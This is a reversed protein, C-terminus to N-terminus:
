FEAFVQIGGLWGASCQIEEALFEEARDVGDAGFGVVGSDRLGDDLGLRLQLFDALLHLVHLLRTQSFANPSSVAMVTSDVEGETNDGVRRRKRNCGAGDRGPSTNACRNPSNSSNSASCRPMSPLWEYKDKDSAFERKKVEERLAILRKWTEQDGEAHSEFRQDFVSIVALYRQHEEAMEEARKIEAMSLKAEDDAKAALALYARAKAQRSDLKRAAELDQKQGDSL